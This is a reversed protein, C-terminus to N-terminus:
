QLIFINKCALRSISPNDYGDLIDMLLKESTKLNIKENGTKKSDIKKKLRSKMNEIKKKIQTETYIYGKEALLPILVQIAEKKRIKANPAQSKELLSSGHKKLLSVFVFDEDSSKESVPEEADFEIVNEEDPSDVTELVEVEESIKKLFCSSSYVVFFSYGSVKM